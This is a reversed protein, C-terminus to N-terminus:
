GKKRRKTRPATFAAVPLTTAPIDQEIAKAIAHMVFDRLTMGHLAACAKARRVLDEPLDRLNITKTDPTNMSILTDVSVYPTL